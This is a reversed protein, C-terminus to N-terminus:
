GRRATRRREGRRRATARWPRRLLAPTPPGRTTRGAARGRPAAAALRRDCRQGIHQECITALSGRERNPLGMERGQEVQERSATISPAPPHRTRHRVLSPSTRSSTAVAGTVAGSVVPAPSANAAPKRRTEHTSVSGSPSAMRRRAASAPWRLAPSSSRRGRAESETYAERGAIRPAIAADGQQGDRGLDLTRESLAGGHDSEFRREDGVAQWVRCRRRREGTPPPPGHRRRRGPSWRAAHRDCGRDAEVLHGRSSQAARGAGWSRGGSGAPTRPERLSPPCWPTPSPRPVGRRADLHERGTADSPDVPSSSCARCM